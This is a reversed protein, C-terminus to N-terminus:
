TQICKADAINQRINTLVLNDFICIIQLSLLFLVLSLGQAAPAASAAMAVGVNVEVATLCKKQYLKLNITASLSCFNFFSIHNIELFISVHKIRAHLYM